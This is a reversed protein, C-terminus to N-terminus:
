GGKREEVKGYRGRRREEGRREEGRGRRESVVPVSVYLLLLNYFLMGYKLFNESM